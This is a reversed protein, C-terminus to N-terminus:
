GVEQNLFEITAQGSDAQADFGHGAGPSQHLMYTVGAAKLTDALEQQQAFPVNDQAFGNLFVPVDKADVKNVPSADEMASTNTCNGLLGTVQDCTAPLEQILSVLDSPGSYNFVAIVGPTGSLAAYLAIHGGSSTGSLAIHDPDVSFESAHDQVWGVADDADELMQPWQQAPHGPSEATGTVAVAFAPHGQEAFFAAMGSAGQYDGSKWGSGSFCLVPRDSTQNDPKFYAIQLQQGDVTKYM